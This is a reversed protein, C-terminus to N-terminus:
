QNSSGGRCLGCGLSFEIGNPPHEIRLPCKDPGLCQPLQDATKTTMYDHAEQRRHCDDCFHTTGWCYWTSPSCCFRCKFIIYDKGHKACEEVGVGSCSGCILESPDFRDLGDNCRPQGGFYPNKCKFCMYYAFYNMAFGSPNRYYSGTSQTIEDDNLIHEYEAREYAKLEIEKHLDRIPRITEELLPHGIKIQCLPCSAFGFTIQPSSWGEEIRKKVCSYHFVHSCELQVCPGSGLTDTFCINCFDDMFQNVDSPAHEPNLCPACETEGRVGRCPCGCPLMKLCSNDRKKLCEENNCVFKLSESPPNLAIVKPM